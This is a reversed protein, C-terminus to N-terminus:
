DIWFDSHGFAEKFSHRLTKQKTEKVSKRYNIIPMIIGANKKFFNETPNVNLYTALYNYEISFDDASKNIRIKSNDIKTSFGKIEKIPMDCLELIKAGSFSKHMEHFPLFNVAGNIESQFRKFFLEYDFIFHLQSAEMLYNDVYM